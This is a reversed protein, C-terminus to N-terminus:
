AAEWRSRCVYGDRTSARHEYVFPATRKESLALSLRAPLAASGLELGPFFDGDAIEGPPLAIRPDFASYQIDITSLRALPIRGRARAADERELVLMGAADRLTGPETPPLLRAHHHEVLFNRQHCVGGAVAVDVEGSALAACAEEVALYTQGCGPYTLLYPGEIGFSSSVHFAPMNPLCRFTLLPHARQWGDAAFRELSFEGDGDLSGELVPGADRAEFPIFGVALYLGARAGPPRSLGAARLAEGAVVVAMEDQLGMYKRSKRERLWPTSDVRSREGDDGLVLHAAGTVVIM